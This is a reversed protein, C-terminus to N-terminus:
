LAQKSAPLDESVIVKEIGNSLRRHLFALVSAEEGRLRGYVGHELDDLERSLEQLLSGSLYANLVEPHVYSKRCIARTNGLRSSVADIARVVNRKAEAQTEFAAFERLSAAALMTGYWTRFDKASFDQGSIQHIYGNVDSSDITHSAGQEDVYQFLEQGPIDQCSKVIRVLRRDRLDICHEKGSKGRFHFVIKAGEIAVHHDRLTTLGFSENRRAYEENGVRILTTELLKVVAALVKDRPLGPLAMDQEIRDRLEPLARGFSLMRAYKTEDRVERWRPHYRYQKRGRADRGTAQIHGNALPCIWVATWAPPIGLSKIRALTETERIPRGDLGHYSFHKGVRKRQFGPGEDNVYRLGAERASVVPEVVPPPLPLSAELNVGGTRLEVVKLMMTAGPKAMKGRDGVKPAVKTPSTAFRKAGM